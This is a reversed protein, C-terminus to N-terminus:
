SKAESAAPSPASSGGAQKARQDRKAKLLQILFPVPQEPRDRFLEQTLENFLAPIGHKRLYEKDGESSM